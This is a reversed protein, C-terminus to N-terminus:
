SAKAMPMQTANLMNEIFIGYGTTPDNIMVHTVAGVIKGNQIIPSGSMGQVIGGSAAILKPDTVKVTFCKSTRADPNVGSLEIEYKEVKNTDLTCWIYAKGAKVESRKAIPLEGEPCNEPLSNLTGSLGLHTNAVLSGKKAPSFFGKLEGPAGAQGRVVSSITVDLIDGSSMPILEGSEGDCIGHGLGVFIKKDPIIFSVTGIGAGSDKVLVGAKYKKELKSFSPTLQIQKEESGRKVTLTLPTGCFQEVSKTFDDASTIRKGNVAIIVDKLKLPSSPAADAKDPTDSFGVVTVGCTKFKIGFPMGGVIVKEPIPAPSDSSSKRAKRMSHLYSHSACEETGSACVSTNKASVPLLTGLAISALLLLSVIFCLAKPLLSKRTQSIKYKKM